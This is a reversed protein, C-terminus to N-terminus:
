DYRWEKNLIDRREELTLGSWWKKHAFWGSLNPVKSLTEEPVIECLLKLAHEANIHLEDYTVYPRNSM